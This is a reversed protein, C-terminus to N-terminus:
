LEQTLVFVFPAMRKEVIVLNHVWDTPQDVKVLVGSKVNAEIAKQLRGKLSHPVHSPSCVLPKCDSQLTIHYQGLKELGTFVNKYLAKISEKTLQGGSCLNIM